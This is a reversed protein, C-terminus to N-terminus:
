LSIDITSLFSSICHRCRSPINEIDRRTRQGACCLYSRIMTTINRVCAPERARNINRATQWSDCLCLVGRNMRFFIIPRNNNNNEERASDIMDDISFDLHCVYIVPVPITFTKLNEDDTSLQVTNDIVFFFGQGISMYRSCHWGM